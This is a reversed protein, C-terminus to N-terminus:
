IEIIAPQLVPKTISDSKSQKIKYSYTYHEGGKKHYEINRIIFRLEEGLIYSLHLTCDVVDNILFPSIKKIDKSFYMCEFYKNKKKINLGFKGNIVDIFNNIKHVLIATKLKFTVSHLGGNEFKGSKTHIVCLRINIIPIIKKEDNNIFIRRIRNENGNKRQVKKLTYEIPEENFLEM